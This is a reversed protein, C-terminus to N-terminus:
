YILPKYVNMIKSGYVDESYNDKVFELANKIISYNDKNVVEQILSVCEELTEFLYGTKNHKVFDTTGGSNRAIVPCGYFMAEITVRGMAEYKSSMIYATATTYIDKLNETFENIQIFPVANYEQALKYLQSKYNEDCRGYMILTYGKKYIESKLFAEVCFSAGKNPTIYAACFLIFKNKTPNYEAETKKRVANGIIYSNKNKIHWHNAVSTSIAIRADAKNIFHTLRKRGGIVRINFDLDLYERIHWVHKVHLEKAIYHGITFISANSHVIDIKYPKLIKILNRTTKIENKIYSIFLKPFHKYYEFKSNTTQLIQFPYVLYQINLTKLYETFDGESRALVIPNVYDQVSSILNCLSKAAGGWGNTDHVIYLVNIKQM